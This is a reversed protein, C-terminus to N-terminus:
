GLVAHPYAAQRQQFALIEPNQIVGAEIEIARQLIEVQPWHEPGALFDALYPLLAQSVEWSACEWLLNPTHDVAYYDIQALQLLPEAFSTPRSFPFGMGEDCSIDLLLCGAKLRPAEAETLFMLPQNPDQLVANILLDAQALLELLPRQSGDPELTVLVGASTKVIRRFDCGALEPPATHEPRLLTCVTIDHFGRGQLAALAGHGVAGFSLMVVKRPKGYRGDWGKLQLAHLVACYGGMENNKYFPHSLRMGQADRVFMQEMAVVSLRREIALQTNAQQQLCHPWGWLMGGQRLSAFDPPMPKLLLVAGLEQLLTERSALGGVLPALEADSVGFREGYGTEFILQQRLTPPIQPLHELHLPVRKEHPKLSTGIIGLKM